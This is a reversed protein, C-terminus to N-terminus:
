EYSEGKLAKTLNVIHPEFQNPIKHPTRVKAQWIGDSETMLYRKGNDKKIALLADFSHPSELGTARGIFMPSFLMKETEDKEKNLKATCVINFDSLHKKFWINIVERMEEGVERYATLTDPEGVKNLCTKKKIEFLMETIQSLSDIFITKYGKDPANKKIISLAQKFEDFSSVNIYPIKKDSITQLGDEANIIIPNDCTSALATKGAGAAGYVLISLCKENNLDSTCQIEM